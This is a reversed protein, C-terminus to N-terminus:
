TNKQALELVNELLVSVTMPGVGGPVPTFKIEKEDLGKPNVDGVLKGDVRHIGVDIVVAGKKFHSEDLFEPLGAAVVIIDADKLNEELNVTKSHCVTVTANARTLMWAMPWGVIHSRGVVVAKKGKAEVGAFDLLKMIGSPTCPESWAKGKLMLGMNESTLGDVDKRALIHDTPDFSRLHEPLPLQVLVGDTGSDENIKTIESLLEEESANKPLVILESQIGIKECAKQKHGVYVQSAPDEGVLIVTLKPKRNIASTLKLAKKKLEELRMKSLETGSIIM